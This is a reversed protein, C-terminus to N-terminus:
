SPLPRRLIAGRPTELRTEELCLADASSAPFSLYTFVLFHRFPPRRPTVPACLLHFLSFLLSLLLPFRSFAAASERPPFLLWRKKKSTKKEGKKEEEEITEDAFLPMRLPPTIHVPPDVM